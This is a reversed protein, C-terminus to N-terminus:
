SRRVFERWGFYGFAPGLTLTPGLVGTLDASTGLSVQGALLLNGGAFLPLAAITGLFIAGPLSRALPNLLGAIVDAMLFSAIYFAILSLYTLGYPVDGSVVVLASAIVAYFVGLGAGLIVCVVFGLTYPWRPSESVQSRPSTTM